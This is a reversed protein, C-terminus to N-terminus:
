YELTSIIKQPHLRYSYDYKLKPNNEEAMDKYIKRRSTFQKRGMMTRDKTTTPSANMNNSYNHLFYQADDNNLSPALISQAITSIDISGNIVLHLLNNQSKLSPRYQLRNYHNLEIQFTEQRITTEIVEENIHANSNM